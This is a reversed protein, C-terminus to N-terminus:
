DDGTLKGLILTEDPVGPAELPLPDIANVEVLRAALQMVACQQVLLRM